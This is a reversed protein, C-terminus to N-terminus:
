MLTHTASIRWLLAIPLKLSYGSPRAKTETLILLTQLGTRSGFRRVPKIEPNLKNSKTFGPLGGTAIFSFSSCDFTTNDTLNEVKIELRPQQSELHGPDQFVVAYYYTLSFEHAQAPITFTYSIGEAGANGETNGLKVSYNSGNPCAIPFGGYYDNTPNSSSIITQHDEDPSSLPNLVIGSVESVNGAYPVWGDFTGNEFDINPPCQAAANCFVALLIFILLTHYGTRRLVIM